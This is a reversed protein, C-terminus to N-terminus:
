PLTVEYGLMDIFRLGDDTPEVHWREDCTDCVWADGDEHCESMCDPCHVEVLESESASM